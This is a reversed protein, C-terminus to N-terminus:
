AGVGLLRRPVLGKPSRRRCGFLSLGGELRAGGVALRGSKVAFAQQRDMIQRLGVFRAADHFVHAQMDRAALRDAQQARVPGALGGHEIHDRPQHLGILAHNREVAIIHRREGHIAARPEPDAIQRLFGRYEPAKRDLVIDAGHEFDGLGVGFLALLLKVREEFFEAEGAHAM